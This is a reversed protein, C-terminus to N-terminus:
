ARLQDGGRESQQWHETSHMCIRRGGQAAVAAVKLEPPLVVLEPTEDAVAVAAELSGSDLTRRFCSAVAAAAVVLPVAAALAPAGPARTM